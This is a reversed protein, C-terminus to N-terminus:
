GPFLKDIREHMTRISFEKMAQRDAQWAAEEEPTMEAAPIADFEARWKAIMEPSGDFEEERMGIEEDLPEVRLKCGEPWDVPGSPVIQGNRYVAVTASM